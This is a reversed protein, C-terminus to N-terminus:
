RWCWSAAPRPASRPPPPIRRLGGAPVWDAPRDASRCISGCRARSTSNRRCATRRCRRRRRSRPLAPGAARKVDRLRGIPRADKGDHLLIPSVSGPAGTADVFSMSGRERRWCWSATAPWSRSPRSATSRWSASMTIRLKSLSSCHTPLWQHLSTAAARNARVSLHRAITPRQRHLAADADKPDIGPAVASGDPRLRWDEILLVEDRDVASRSARRHRDAAAGAVPLAQGDGLLASDCLFTGAHRLPFRSPIRAAQRGAAGTRDATRSGSGRRHRALQTRRAGAPENGLTVELTEGRKFRFAPGSPAARLSWIPTDPAARGCPSSAPRAQLALSPRAQAAAISPLAPALAAAGLGALLDRRNLRPIGIQWPVIRVM